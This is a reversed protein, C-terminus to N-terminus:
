GMNCYDSCDWGADGAPPIEIFALSFVIAGITGGAGGALFLGVLTGLADIEYMTEQKSLLKPGDGAQKLNTKTQHHTWLERSAVFVSDFTRITASANGGEFAPVSWDVDPNKLRARVAAADTPSVIGRAEWYDIIAGPNASGPAAFDFVHKHRLEFIMSLVREIDPATVVPPIGDARFSANAAAVLTKVFAARTIVRDGLPRRAAYARAIQNHLRGPDKVDRFFVPNTLGQYGGPPSVPGTHECALAVCAAALLCAIPVMRRVM